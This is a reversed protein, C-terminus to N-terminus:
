NFFQMFVLKSRHYLIRIMFLFFASSAKTMIDELTSRCETVVAAHLALSDGLSHALSTISHFLVASCLQLTRDADM